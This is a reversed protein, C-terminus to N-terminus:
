NHKCKFRALLEWNGFVTKLSKDEILGPFLVPPFTKYAMNSTSTVGLLQQIEPASARDYHPNTFYKTPLGFIDGAVGRLKKIENARADPISKLVLDSFYSSEMVKHLSEPFHHYLEDLFASEQMAATVYQESSDFATPSAPCKKNLLESTPFMEVMMGYKRAYITITDKHISFKHQTNACRKRKPKEAQLMKNEEKISKNEEQLQQMQVQLAKLTELLEGKSASPGPISIHEPDGGLVDFDSETDQQTQKMHHHPCPSTSIKLHWSFDETGPIAQPSTTGNIDKIIGNYGKHNGQIVTIVAGIVRDQPGCGMAGSGVMGGQASGAATPNMKGLDMGPKVLNGKPTLSALSHCQTVFVGGNELIDRNHLFAFFSEGEIEKINDQVHLEHGESDTAIAHQDSNMRTLFVSLTESPKSFSVSLELQVLDHLEYNGVINTGSGVKAAERLDKSGLFRKCQCIRRMIVAAWAISGPTIQRISWKLSNTHAGGGSSEQHLSAVGRLSAKLIRALLEWNGFVTKLSKDEILGPFLVPPFTKYAVNSASTVGLLQQIEPASARDYHPNTFYKTPLGFIDGAIGRLKKIENAHADPISKLVLDSFYSSEMVKHLLEPFHRYIEDLFASENRTSSNAPLFCEVMMGYKRAYIIITDEHISFKHQTDACRKWKPKEAQLMKNEEKISKNEEQLRQMQVQLAKLTELLEGKSASPGPISIYEPDGGLVDFDSETDSSLHM